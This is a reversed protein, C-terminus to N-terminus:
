IYHKRSSALSILTASCGESSVQTWYKQVWTMVVFLDYRWIIRWRWTWTLYKYSHPVTGDCHPIDFLNSWKRNACFAIFYNMASSKECRPHFIRLLLIMSTIIVPILCRKVLYYVLSALFYSILMYYYALYSIKIYWYSTGGLCAIISTLERMHMYM